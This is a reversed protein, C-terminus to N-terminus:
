HNDEFHSGSSQNTLLAHHQYRRGPVSEDASYYIDFSLMAQVICRPLLDISLCIIPRTNLFKSWHIKGLQSNEINDKSIGQYRNHLRM